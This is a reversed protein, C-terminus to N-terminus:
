EVPVENLLPHSPDIEHAWILGSAYRPIVYGDLTWGFKDEGAIVFEPKMRRSSEVRDTPVLTEHIVRYNGPLYAEAQSRSTANKVIAYRTM